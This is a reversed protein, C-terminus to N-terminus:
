KVIYVSRLQGTGGVVAKVTVSQGGINVTGEWTRTGVKTGGGSILDFGIKAQDGVTMSPDLAKFEDLHAALHKISNNSLAAYANASEAAGQLDLV